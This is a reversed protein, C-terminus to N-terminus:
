LDFPDFQEQGTPPAPPKPKPDQRQSVYWVRWYWGSNGSRESVIPQLDYGIETGSEIKAAAAAAVIQKALATRATVAGPVRGALPHYCTSSIVHPQYDGGSTAIFGASVLARTVACYTDVLHLRMQDLLQHADLVAASISKEPM